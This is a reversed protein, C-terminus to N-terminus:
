LFSSWYRTKPKLKLSLTLVAYISSIVMITWAASTIRTSMWTCTCLTLSKVNRLQALIRRSFDCHVKSLKSFSMIRSLGMLEYRNECKLCSTSTSLKMLLVETINNTLANSFLVLLVHVHIFSNAIHLRKQIPDDHGHTNTLSKLSNNVFRLSLVTKTDTHYKQLILRLAFCSFKNPYLAHAPIKSIIM